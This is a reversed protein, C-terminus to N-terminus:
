LSQYLSLLTSEELQWNYAKQAERCNNRMHLLKPKDNLLQQLTERIKETELPCLVAVEYVGNIIRYEPLDACLQPIGAHIYNFFKNSLSYHYSLSDDNLLNLGLTARATLRRLQDPMVYGMFQVKQQVNLARILDELYARYPGDGAIVLKADLDPMCAIIEDLGRGPNLDGQYIFMPQDSPVYEPNTEHLLTPVNRIVHFHKRFKESFIQALSQSVTYRLHTHPMCFKEVLGWIFQILNRDKLEPVETFYEHADFVLKRSKMRAIFTNPLLTDTDIAAYIDAKHWFLYLLLRFNYELYFLKGKEFYCRLRVQHYPKPHLPSSHKRKRGVLCVRYGALSLSTCIRAMRQDYVLDNTVTFIISKEIGEM